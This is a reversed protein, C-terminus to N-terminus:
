MRVCNGFFHSWSILLKEFKWTKKQKKGIELFNWSQAIAIPSGGRGSCALKKRSNPGISIRSMKPVGKDM